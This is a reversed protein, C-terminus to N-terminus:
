NRHTSNKCTIRSEIRVVALLQEGRQARKSIMPVQSVKDPSVSAFLANLTTVKEQTQQQYIVQDKYFCTWIKKGVKFNLCLRKKKDKDDKAFKLELHAKPKGSAM